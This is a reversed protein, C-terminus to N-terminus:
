DEQTVRIMADVAVVGRGRPLVLVPNVDLEHLQTANAQAYSAVAMVADILAEVDGPPRGRYGCLLPWSRLSELALRVEARRIPLLVTIADQLLEVLVGGAGLTLALGFQLDRTVGVIFEAVVETAMQEVLFRDSLHAMAVVADTVQAVNKLNLRVAGAETKHALTASVAKVVLPFQLQAAVVGATTASAVAGRPIALGFAALAQKSAFEDLMRRQREKGQGDVHARHKPGALPLIDGRCARVGGIAAAHGIADLCEAIGQMPAIGRELLQRAVGDPMGEPLSALVACPVPRQAHAAIFADVTTQWAGSVCRDARPFDLVLLHLDFDCALLATFCATQAALDGWVYTHYDLPNALSVKDGLVAHLAARAAAPLAPM